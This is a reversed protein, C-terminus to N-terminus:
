RTEDTYQEFLERMNIPLVESGDSMVPLVSYTKRDVRWAVIVPGPDGQPGREGQPGHKGQRGMSVILQWGDGPCPGPNHKTAIFSSGNVAVIDLRTYVEEPNFTGCINPTLGDKGDRGNAGAAALCVWDDKNGDSPLRATDRLAQYSAGEFTVVDAAYYVAGPKYAKVIPLKGPEGQDGKEGRAGPAGIPGAEGREGPAGAKGEPGAAGDRGNVGDAGREGAPGLGGPEGSPGPGGQAGAPGVEGPPGQEGKVGIAGPEGPAGADGPAGAPGIEGPPGQEGQPGAEGRLGQVGPVGQPGPEGAPGPAGDAGREGDRGPAGNRLESLRDAVARALDRHLRVSEGRVEALARTAQAEIVTTFGQAGRAGREGREGRPGRDGAEGQPGVIGQIGIAGREGPAGIAGVEGREGREGQPGPPGQEGREGREGAPGPAGDSGNHVEALRVLVKTTLDAVTQAVLRNLEDRVELVDARLEAITQAAQAEILKRERKWQQQQIAIVHALAEDFSDIQFNEDSENPPQLSTGHPVDLM